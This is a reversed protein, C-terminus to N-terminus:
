VYKCVFVVWKADHADHNKERSGDDEPQPEGAAIMVKAAMKPMPELAHM